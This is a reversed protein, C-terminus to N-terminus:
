TKHLRSRVTNRTSFNSYLNDILLLQTFRNKLLYAVTNQEIVCRHPFLCGDMLLSVSNVYEGKGAVRKKELRKAPLKDEM